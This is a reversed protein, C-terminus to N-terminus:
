HAPVGLISAYHEVVFQGILPIIARELENGVYLLHRGDRRPLDAPM